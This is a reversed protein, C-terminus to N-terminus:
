SDAVPDVQEDRAVFGQGQTIVRLREPLGSVWVGDSGTKVLTVPHFAVRNEGNVSKIGVRGSDDLTLAAPSLFHATEQAVQIRLEASVGGNLAGSANDVEAEVRFSRTGLEAVRALYSIQGSAERGDLVRVRVVQGLALASVSQQPIQGVAKLRSDDVIEAIPDGREVLSGIEVARTELTGPFPAEIRTRALDLELRKREAVAAALAAEAARLANAAQLGKQELKRTGDLTLQASAVEAEAKALQARRDNEALVAIVSGEDVARGKELPLGAVQGDTEARVEVRRLPELQGQVVVERTVQSAKSSFVKVRMPQPAPKENVLTNRDPAGIVIGSLMWVTVAIIL